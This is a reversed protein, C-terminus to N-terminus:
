ETLSKLYKAIDSADTAERIRSRGAPTWGFKDILRSVNNQSALFASLQTSKKDGRYNDKGVIGVEGSSIDRMAEDMIVLNGAIIDLTVIFVDPIEQFQRMLADAFIKMYEQVHENYKEYRKLFIEQTM